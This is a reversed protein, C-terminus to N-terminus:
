HFPDFSDLSGRVRLHTVEAGPVMGDARMAATSTGATAWPNVTPNLAANRTGVYVRVHATVRGCVGNGMDLFGQGFQSCHDAIRNVPIVNIPTGDIYDGAAVSSATLPAVVLAGLVLCSTYNRSLIM